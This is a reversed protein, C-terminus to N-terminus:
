IRVNRYTESVILGVVKPVICGFESPIMFNAIWWAPKMLGCGIECADPAFAEELTGASMEVGRVIM